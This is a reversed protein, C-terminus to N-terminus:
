LLVGRHGRRLLRLGEHQRVFRLLAKRLVGLDGKLLHIITHSVGQDCCVKVHTSSTQMPRFTKKEGDM